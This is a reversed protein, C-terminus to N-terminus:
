NEMWEMRRTAQEADRVGDMYGGMYARDCREWDRSDGTVLGAFFAIALLLMSALIICIITM